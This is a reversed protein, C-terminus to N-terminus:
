LVKCSTLHTSYGGSTPYSSVTIGPGTKRIQYLLCAINREECEVKNARPNARSATELAMAWDGAMPVQGTSGASLIQFVGTSWSGTEALEAAQTAVM